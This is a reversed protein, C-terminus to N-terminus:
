PAAGPAFAPVPEADPKGPGKLDYAIKGMGADAITGAKIDMEYAPKKEPNLGQRVTEERFNGKNFDNGFVAIGASPRGEDALLKPLNAHGSQGSIHHLGLVGFM